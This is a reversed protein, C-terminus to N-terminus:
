HGREGDHPAAGQRRLEEAMAADPPRWDPPKIVKGIGNYRPKGDPWLKTMNAEHVIGFLPDPEVGMAALTGVAFYILDILADTQDLLTGADRYEDLEEQMYALRALQSDRPLIVPVDSVEHGFRIHFDRVMAAWDRM